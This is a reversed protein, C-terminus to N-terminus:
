HTVEKMMHEIDVFALTLCVVLSKSQCTSLLTLPGPQLHLFFGVVIQHLLTHDLCVMQNSSTKSLELM